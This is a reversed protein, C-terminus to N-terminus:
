KKFSQIKFTRNKKQCQSICVVMDEHGHLLYVKWWRFIRIDFILVFATVAFFVKWIDFFLFNFYIPCQFITYTNLVNKM